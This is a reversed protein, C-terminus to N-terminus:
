ITEGPLPSSTFPAPHKHQFQIRKLAEIGLKIAEKESEGLKRDFTSLVRNNTEIAKEIKM